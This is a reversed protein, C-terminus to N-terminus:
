KHITQNSATTNKPEWVQNTEKRQRGQLLSAKVRKQMSAFLEYHGQEEEGLKRTIEFRRCGLM